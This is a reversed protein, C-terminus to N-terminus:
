LFMSPFKNVPAFSVMEIAILIHFIDEQRGAVILQTYIKLSLHLGMCGDEEWSLMQSLCLNHLGQVPM